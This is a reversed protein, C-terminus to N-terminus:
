ARWRFPWPLARGDRERGEEDESDLLVRIRTHRNQAGRVLVRRRAPSDLGKRARRVAARAAASNPNGWTM